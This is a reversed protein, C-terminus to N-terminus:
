IRAAIARACVNEAHTASTWNGNEPNVHRGSASEYECSALAIDCWKVTVTDGAAAAENRLTRIQRRTTKITM